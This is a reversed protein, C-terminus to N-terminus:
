TSLCHGWGWVRLLTFWLGVYPAGFWRAGVPSVLGTGGLPTLVSRGRGVPGGSRAALGAM